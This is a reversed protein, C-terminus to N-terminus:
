MARKFLTFRSGVEIQSATTSYIDIQTINATTGSKVVSGYRLRTSVAVKECSMTIARFYDSPDLMAIIDVTARDNADTNAIIPSNTRAASVTTTNAEIQQHNYNSATTDGNVYLYLYCGTAGCLWECRVEYLGDSDIDLGTFSVSTVASGSVTITEVKELAGASAAQFTPAAGAGNSTLVQNATGTAVAAPDGSADYTLINGATGAAMKALTIADDDIEAAQVSPGVSFGIYRTKTAM